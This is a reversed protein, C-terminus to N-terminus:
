GKKALVREFIDKITQSSRIDDGKIQVDYEEDIMSIISLATISSWSPLDRFRTDATVVAGELDDFQESVQELFTNIDM